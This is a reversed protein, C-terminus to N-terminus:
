LPVKLICKFLCYLLMKLASYTLLSLVVLSITSYLLISYYSKRVLHLSNEAVFLIGKPCDISCVPTVHSSPQFSISTYSISHRASHLLWPRDSLAIIDADLTDDLPVLFVPTIGIRRIAILQLMCPLNVNIGMTTSNVLNISSLATDVV